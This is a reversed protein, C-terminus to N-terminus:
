FMELNKTLSINYSQKSWNWINERVCVCVCVCVYIFINM